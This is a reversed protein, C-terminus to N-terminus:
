LKPGEKSVEQTEKALPKIYRIMDELRALLLKFQFNLNSIKANKEDLEAELRAIKDKLEQIKISETDAFSHQSELPVRSYSENEIRDLQSVSDTKSYAKNVVIEKSFYKDMFQKINTKEFDSDLMDHFFGHAKFYIGSFLVKESLAIDAKEDVLWTIPEVNVWYYQGRKVQSEGPKFLDGDWNSVVRIYKKGNYEYEEHHVPSFTNEGYGIGHNSDTTYSKGTKKISGSNYAKELEQSYDDDVLTQPYEGYQITKIGPAVHVENSSLHAISSYTLVPRGGCTRQEVPIRYLDMNRPAGVVLASKYLKLGNREDWRQTQLWWRCLGDGYSLNGLLLESFDTSNAVTGYRQIIDLNQVQEITLFTANSDM